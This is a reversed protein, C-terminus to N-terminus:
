LDGLLLRRALTRGSKQGLVPHSTLSVVPDRDDPKRRWPVQLLGGALAALADLHGLEDTRLYDARGTKERLDWTGFRLQAILNECRAHIRIRNERFATTLRDAEAESGQSRHGMNVAYGRDRFDQIQQHGRPDNTFRRATHIGGPPLWGLSQEKQKLAQAITDTSQRRGQWEDVVFLTHSESDYECFVAAFFDVAGGQDLFVMRQFRTGRPVNLLVHEALIFDSIVRTRDDAVLECLYERRWTTSGVKTGALIADIGEKSEEPNSLECSRRIEEPTYLPCRDYRMSYITGAKEAQRIFGVSSHVLSQPPTTSQVLLGGTKNLQPSLVQNVLYDLDCEHFAMEDIYTRHSFPGRLRDVDDQTKTGAIFLRSQNPWIYCGEHQSYRARMPKPCDHAVLRWIPLITSVVQKQTPGAFRQISGPNQRAFEEVAVVEWTTKGTQRPWLLFPRGRNHQQELAHIKEDLDLQGAHLKYKLIGHSWAYRVAQEMSLSRGDSLGIADSAM